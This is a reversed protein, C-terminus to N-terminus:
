AFAHETEGITKGNGNRRYASGSVQSRPTVTLRSPGSFELRVASTSSVHSEAPVERKEARRLIGCALIAAVAQLREDPTMDDPDIIENM